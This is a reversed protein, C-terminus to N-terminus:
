EARIGSCDGTPAVKPLWRSSKNRAWGTNEVLPRPRDAGNRNCDIPSRSSLSGALLCSRSGDEARGLIDWVHLVCDEHCTSRAEDPRVEDERPHLM